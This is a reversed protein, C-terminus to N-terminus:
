NMSQEVVHMLVKNETMAGNNMLSRTRTLIMIQTNTSVKVM